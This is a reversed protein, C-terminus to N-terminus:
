GGDEHNRKGLQESGVFAKKAGFRASRAAGGYYTGDADAYSTIDVDSRYAEDTTIRPLQPPRTTKNEATSAPNPKNKRKFLHACAM